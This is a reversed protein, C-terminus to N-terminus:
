ADEFMGLWGSVSVMELADLDFAHFKGDLAADPEILLNLDQGISSAVVARTFGADRAQAETTPPPYKCGSIM